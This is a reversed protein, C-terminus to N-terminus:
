TAIASSRGAELGGAGIPSGKRRRANTSANAAGNKSIAATNPEIRVPRAVGVSAAPRPAKPVIKSAPNLDACARPSRNVCAPATAASPASAANNAATSIAGPPPASAILVPSATSAKAPNASAAPRSCRSRVSVGANCDVAFIVAMTNMIRIPAVKNEKTNRPKPPSSVIAAASSAIGPPRTPAITTTMANINTNPKKRSKMSIM